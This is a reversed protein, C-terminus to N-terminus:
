FITKESTEMAKTSEALVKANEKTLMEITAQYSKLMYEQNSSGKSSELLTDLKAKLQKFMGKKMPADDDDSNAHVTFTSFVLDTFNEPDDGFLIDPDDDRLPSTTSTGRGMTVSTNVDAGMDSVNAHIDSTHVEKSVSKAVTFKHTSTVITITTTTSDIFIPTSFPVSIQPLSNGFFIMPPLPPISISITTTNVSSPPTNMQFFHSFRTSSTPPTSFKPIPETLTPESTAATYEVENQVIADEQIDTHTRSESAQQVVSSTSRAKRAKKKVKKPTSVVESTAAKLKRKGGRKTKNGEKIAKRLECSKPCVGSTPQKRYKNVIANDSPVKGLMVKLVSGVFNFKKPDYMMFTSTQVIPITAVVSDTTM